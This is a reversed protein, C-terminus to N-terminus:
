KGNNEGLLTDEKIKYYVNFKKQGRANNTIMVKKRMIIKNKCLNSIQSSLTKLKVDLKEAIEESTFAFNKEKKLFDIVKVRIPREDLENWELETIM